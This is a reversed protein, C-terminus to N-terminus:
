SKEVCELVKTPVVDIDHEREVMISPKIQYREKVIEDRGAGTINLLIVDGKEVTQNEVAQILSAVAVSSPPEVLYNEKEKFLKQAEKAEENTVSYFEGNTASLVDYIGGTVSYAPHRNTLVHAYVRSILSKAEEKQYKENIERTNNKWADYMPVFPYNQAGHIKPLHSGYRGDEILRLSAEYAAIAGPGSGLAQFYHDPVSGLMNSTELMVTGVSDRRAINKAGGEVLISDHKGINNALKISDYYDSKGELSVLTLYPLENYYSWLRERRTDETVVLIIPYKYINSYHIFSVGMNGDSSLVFPKGSVNTDKVRVIATEAEIDKFTGTPMGSYGNLCIILKKLGLYEALGKSEYLNFVGTSNLLNTDVNQIPLWNEYKWIGRHPKLELKKNEYETRLLSNCGNACRVVYENETYTKGCSVCRILYKM